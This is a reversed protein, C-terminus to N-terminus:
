TFYEATQLLSLRQPHTCKPVINYIFLSGLFSITHSEGISMYLWPQKKQPQAQWPNMVININM